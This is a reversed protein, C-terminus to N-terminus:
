ASGTAPAPRRRAPPEDVRDGLAQEAEDRAAQEGRKVITLRAALM